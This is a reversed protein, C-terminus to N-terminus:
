LTERLDKSRPGHVSRRSPITPLTKVDGPPLIFHIGHSKSALTPLDERQTNKKKLIDILAKKRVFFRENTFQEIGFTTMQCLETFEFSNALNVTMVGGLYSAGSMVGGVVLCLSRPINEVRKFFSAAYM